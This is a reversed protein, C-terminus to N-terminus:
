GTNRTWQWAYISWKEFSPQFEKASFPLFWFKRSWSRRTEAGQFRPRAMSCNMFWSASLGFKHKPVMSTCCYDKPAWIFQVVLVLTRSLSTPSSQSDSILLKPYKTQPSFFTPLNSIGTFLMANIWIFFGKTCMIFLKVSKTNRSSNRRSCGDSSIGKRTSTPWSTAIIKARSYM